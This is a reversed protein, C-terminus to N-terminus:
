YLPITPLWNFSYFSHLLASHLQLSVAIGLDINYLFEWVHAYMNLDANRLIVFLHFCVKHWVPFYVTIYIWSHFDVCCHFHIFWIYVFGCSYIECHQSFFKYDVSHHLKYWIKFYAFYCQANNLSTNCMHLLAYMSITVM